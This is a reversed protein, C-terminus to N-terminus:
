IPEASKREFRIRRHAMDFTVRFHRLLAAGASGRGDPALAVVPNELAHGAWM